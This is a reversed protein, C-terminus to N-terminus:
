KHQVSAVLVPQVNRLRHSGPHKCRRFTQAVDPVFQNLSYDFASAMHNRDYGMETFYAHRDHRSVGVFRGRM